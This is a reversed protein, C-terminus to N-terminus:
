SENAQDILPKADVLHGGALGLVGEGEVIRGLVLDSLVGVDPWKGSWTYKLIESHLDNKLGILLPLLEDRALCFCGLNGLLLCRHIM